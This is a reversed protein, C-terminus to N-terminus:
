PKDDVACAVATAVACAVATGPGQAAAHHASAYEYPRIHHQCGSVTHVADLHATHSGTAPQSTDTGTDTGKDTDTDTDTYGTSICPLMDCRPM